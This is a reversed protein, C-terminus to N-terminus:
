KRSRWLIAAGDITFIYGSTVKIEARDSIWNPDSYGELLIPYGGYHLGYTSTGRLYIM